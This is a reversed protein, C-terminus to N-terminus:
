ETLGVCTAKKTKIRLIWFNNIAASIAADCIM